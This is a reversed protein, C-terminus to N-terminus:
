LSLTTKQNMRSTLQENEKLFKGLFVQQLGLVLEIM